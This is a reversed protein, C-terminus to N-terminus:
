MAPGGGGLKIAELEKMVQEGAPIAPYKSADPTFKFMELPALIQDSAIHAFLTSSVRWLSKGEAKAKDIASLTEPCVIVEHFGARIEGGTLWELQKAAQILLCGKPVKVISKTGDRLWIFLGPFRSRGHITLFNLDYHFNAFVTGSSGFFELDSGTPALLHPGHEMMKRLTDKPLGLGVATMEAVTQVTNLIANGWSDMTEKWQPFKGSGPIVDDANLGPFKTTEPDPRSGIRWFFRWKADPDPPCISLPRNKDDFSAALNCHDRAKETFGPTAGVQYFVEPHIDSKKEEESQEFYKEMQDVFFDNLDESVRPDKVLLIGYQRLSDVVDKCTEEAVGTDLFVKLDIVKIADLAYV